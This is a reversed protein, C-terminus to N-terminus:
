LFIVYARRWVNPPISGRESATLIILYNTDSGRGDRATATDVMRELERDGSTQRDPQVLALKRLCVYLHELGQGFTTSENGLVVSVEAREDIFHKVLSAAQIVGHEFRIRFNEPDIDETLRTDLLITMRREDEATFERVTLRRARATAKWDIHRLDDRQQYDRLMLLDHGFGRRFSASQGTFLPLLHLEDAVRQPKPYVVIDVERSRLRRRHRFFGFPFRTSLEFGTVLVHGRKRFLQEITQEAAARHPIYTFYALTRKLFRSRRTLKRAKRDAPGRAEVLISFSPLLRKENKITVLVETPEGAFIHDPFRAAVTLDRLTLRAAAWSVFLTSLMISFVLFLLNNGTNWAALAVVVLIVIFVVGGATVELPLGRNAVELYASRALPPVVLITILLAFLLSAIAGAGALSPEGLHRAFITFFATACGGIVLLTGLITNRWRSLFSSANKKPRGRDAAATKPRDSRQSPHGPEEKM